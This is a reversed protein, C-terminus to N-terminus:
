MITQSTSLLINQNLTQIIKFRSCDYDYVVKNNAEARMPQSDVGYDSSPEEFDVHIWANCKGDISMRTWGVWGNYTRSKGNSECYSSGCTYEQFVKSEDRQM